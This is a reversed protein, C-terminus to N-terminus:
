SNSISDILFDESRKKEIKIIENVKDYNIESEFTDTLNDDSDNFYVVRHLLKMHKLLSEVKNKRRSSGITLFQKNFKISFVTGHFMNTIVFSANQIYKMWEFPNITTINEDAWLHKFGISVIKINKNYAFEKMQKIINEGNKEFNIGYFLLYNKDLSINVSSIEKDYNYLLTPDLVLTSKLDLIKEIINYSNDDRVSINNFKELGKTLINPVEDNMNVKGFCGAYSILKSKNFPVGFYAGDIGFLDNKFNWVEDSGVIIIDLGLDNIKSSDYISVTTNLKKQVSKFKIFKRLNSFFIKPNKTYFLAKLEGIFHKKNKYAIVKNDFGLEKLRNHLAYVQAYAGFNIGDFYTLIGIKM